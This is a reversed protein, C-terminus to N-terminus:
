GNLRGELMEQRVESNPIGGKSSAKSAAKFIQIARMHFVWYYRLAKKLEEITGYLFAHDIESEIGQLEKFLNGHHEYLFEYLGIPYKENLLRLIEKAIFEKSESM